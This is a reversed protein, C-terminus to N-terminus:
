KLESLTRRDTASRAPVPVAFPKVTRNKLSVLALTGEPVTTEQCATCIVGSLASPHGFRQVFWGHEDPARDDARSRAARVADRDREVTSLGDDTPRATLVYGFLGVSCVLSPCEGHPPTGRTT